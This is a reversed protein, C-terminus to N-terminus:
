VECRKLYGTDGCSMKSLVAGRDILLQAQVCACLWQFILILHNIIFYSLAGVLLRRLSPRSKEFSGQYERAPYIWQYVSGKCAVGCSWQCAVKDCMCRHIM